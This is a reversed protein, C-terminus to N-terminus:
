GGGVFHVLEISMGDKISTESWRERDIVKGDVEAVVLNNELKYHAVVDLLTKVHDFHEEEGNIRLVAM